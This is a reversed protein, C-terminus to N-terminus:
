GLSDHGVEFCGWHVSGLSSGPLASSTPACSPRPQGRVSDMRLGPGPFVLPCGRSIGALMEMTWSPQGKATPVGSGLCLGKVDTIPKSATMVTHHEHAALQSCLSEGQHGERKRGRPPHLPLGGETPKRHCHAGRRRATPHGCFRCPSSFHSLFPSPTLLIRLSLAMHRLYGCGVTTRIM